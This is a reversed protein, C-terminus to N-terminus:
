SLPLCSPLPPFNRLLFANLIHGSQKQCGISLHPFLSIVSLQSKYNSPFCSQLLKSFKCEVWTPFFSFPLAKRFINKLVCLAQSLAVQYISGLTLNTCFFWIDMTVRFLLLTWPNGSPKPLTESSRRSFSPAGQSVGKWHELPMSAGQSTQCISRGSSRSSELSILVLQFCSSPPSASTNIIPPPWLCLLLFQGSSQPEGRSVAWGNTRHQPGLGEAGWTGAKQQPQFAGAEKRRQM